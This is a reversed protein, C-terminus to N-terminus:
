PSPRISHVWRRGVLSAAGFLGLAALVIAGGTPLDLYFAAVTGAVVAALSCAVAIFLASRFSGALRLATIAPIVVLASTLLIGVIRMAVVVTLAVLATLLLNLADAPVGQVRAGEEDFTIAFFEKSFAAVTGLVVLGLGLIVWLDVPQVVTIAGFLYGFLDVNFGGALGILVVAVAFGGSLFVALAAEGFLRGSTRLREIGVAGVLAAALAGAVPYTQLLLGAAVGALAVHALTDAILSLRRLVLFVGILPAITGIMLGALLARQMFGYQLIEPM